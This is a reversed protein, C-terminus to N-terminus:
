DEVIFIKGPESMAVSVEKDNFTEGWYNRFEYLSMDLIDAAKKQSTTALVSRVQKGGRFLLGGFAKLKNKNVM